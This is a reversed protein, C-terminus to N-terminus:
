EDDLESEEVDDLLTSVDDDLDATEDNFTSAFSFGILLEELKDKFNDSDDGHLSGIENLGIFDNVYSFIEQELEYRVDGDEVSINEQSSIKEIKYIIKQLKNNKNALLQDAVLEMGLNFDYGNNKIADYLRSNTENDNYGRHDIGNNCALELMSWKIYTIINQKLQNTTTTSETIASETIATSANVFTSM